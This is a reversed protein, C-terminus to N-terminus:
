KVIRPPSATERDLSKAREAQWKAAEDPRGTESYLVVLYDITGLIANRSPEKSIMAQYGAVITREAEEYKKEALLQSGVRVQAWHPMWSNLIWEPLIDRNAHVRLWLPNAELNRSNEDYYFALYIASYLSTPHKPGLTKDRVQSVRELLPGAQVMMGRRMYDIGLLSVSEIGDPHEPGLLRDFGDIARKFYPEAREYRDACHHLLGLCYTALLTHYHDRGLTRESSDRVRLLLPEAEDLKRHITLQYGLQIQAFLADAHDPGLQQERGRAVRRMLPVSKDNQGLHNYVISLNYASKLTELHDPGLERERLMLATRAHPEAESYAGIRDMALGITGRLEAEILPQDNFRGEIMKAALRLTEKLTLNPNAQGSASLQGQASSLLLVSKLFETTTTAAKEQRVAQDKERDADERAAKAKGEAIRANDTEVVADDRALEARRAQWLSVGTGIALVAAVVWSAVAVVRRRKRDEAARVAAARRDLDATRAREEAASRLNAVALAVEGADAPRDTKEVSLCQKCLAVLEPDAGIADLQAFASELRGKAALQRTSEADTGVFPPRGTLIVCLIAGLGFVDSRADIQDTAGIAQEPPMYAPTGLVSGARTMEDVGRAVHIATGPKVGAKGHPEGDSQGAVKALGWDMVQVEGFAGVMVNQPKLDRHIIKHAHAYGVAQGIAEFIALFRGHDVSPDSREKLLRDLTRGKILKMALFPRGDPLEGAQHVAPIGPHQLQGTIRAEEVFRSAADSGPAFQDSLIKIAIERGIAVDRARHVVGMGGRGIEDLLVYGAPSGFPPAPIALGTENRTLDVPAVSPQTSTKASGIDNGVFQAPRDANLRTSPDSLHKAIEDAFQPFRRRYEDLPFDPYERRRLELEALVLELAVDRNSELEPFASFYKEVRIPENSKLQYELDTHVLEVLIALRNGGDNALFDTISPRSKFQWADEFAAMVAEIRHWEDTPLANGWAKAVQSHM